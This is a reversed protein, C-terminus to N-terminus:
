INLRGQGVGASFSFVAEVALSSPNLKLATANAGKGSCLM